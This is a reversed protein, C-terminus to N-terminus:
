DDATRATPASVGAGMARQRILARMTRAVATESRRFGTGGADTDLRWLGMRRVYREIPHQELAEWEMQRAFAAAHGADLGQPPYGLHAVFDEKLFSGAGYSWDILDILPWWTYGVLPIGRGRVREVAAVSDRLWSDRRSDDGHTSTEGVFLPIGYRAHAGVLAEELESARADESHSYPRDGQRELRHVSIEPYYNVGWMDPVFPHRSFWSWTEQGLGYKELWPALPHTADVRGTLLDGPLWARAQWHEVDQNRAGVGARFLAACEVHAIGLSPDVSRIAATTAVIGRCIQELVQVFGADGHQHPPWIGRLGCFEATILPENLPTYWRVRDVYREAVARAFNAVAEPYGPNLFGDRLWLPAGYHVLDLILTLGLERTAYDIAPDTWTWDFVGPAPNVRYWPIGYRLAQLGLSAARDLDARWQEYHGTLQYEDLGRGSEPHPHPIFTDEFGGIWVIGSTHDSFPAFLTM